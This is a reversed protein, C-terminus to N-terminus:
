FLASRQGQPPCPDRSRGARSWNHDHGISQVRKWQGASVGECIRSGLDNRLPGGSSKSARDKRHLGRRHHKGQRGEGCIQGKLTVVFPRQARMGIKKRVAAVVGGPHTSIKFPIAQYLAAVWKDRHVPLEAIGPSKGTEPGDTVVTATDGPTETM